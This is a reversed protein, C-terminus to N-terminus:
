APVEWSRVTSCDAWGVASAAACAAIESFRIGLASFLDVETEVLVVQQAELSRSTKM